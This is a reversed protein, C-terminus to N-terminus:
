PRDFDSDRIVPFAEPNREQDADVDDLFATLAPRPRPDKLIHEWIADGNLEPLIRPLDRVLQARATTDLRRIAAEIEQVTSM